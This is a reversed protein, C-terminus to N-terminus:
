IVELYNEQKIVYILNIITYHMELYQNLYFVLMVIMRFAGVDVLIFKYKHDCVAMLVLTFTKKYNFYLNGSKPPAQIQIHKGDM